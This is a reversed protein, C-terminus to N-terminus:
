IDKETGDSFLILIVMYNKKKKKKVMKLLFECM